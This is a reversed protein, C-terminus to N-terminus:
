TNEEAIPDEKAKHLYAWFGLIEKSTQRPTKEVIWVLRRLSRDDIERGGGGGHGPLNKVTGHRSFKKIVNRVTSGPIGLDNSIAKYGKFTKYKCISANRTDESMENTKVM